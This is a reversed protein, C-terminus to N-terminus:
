NLEGPQTPDLLPAKAECEQRVHGTCWMAEGNGSAIHQGYQDEVRINLSFSNGSINIRWQRQLGMRIIEILRAEVLKQELDAVTDM